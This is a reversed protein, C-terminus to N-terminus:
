GPGFVWSCNRWHSLTFRLVVPQPLLGNSTACRQVCSDRPMFSDILWIHHFLSNVAWLAYALDSGFPSILKANREESFSSLVGGAYRTTSNKIFFSAEGVRGGWWMKDSNGWGSGELVSSHRLAEGSCTKKGSGIMWGTGRFGTQGPWPVWM